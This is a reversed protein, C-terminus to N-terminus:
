GNVKGLGHLSLPSARRTARRGRPGKSGASPSCGDSSPSYGNAHGGRLPAPPQQGPPLPPPPPALEPACFVLKANELLQPCSQPDQHLDNGGGACDVADWLRVKPEVGFDVLKLRAYPSADRFRFADPTLLGHFLEQEGLADLAELM